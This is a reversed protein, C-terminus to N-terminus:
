STCIRCTMAKRLSSRAAVAMSYPKIAAPIATAMMGTRVPTPELALATNVASEVASLCCLPDSRKQGAPYQQLEFRASLGPAARVAISATSRHPALHGCETISADIAQFHWSQLYKSGSEPETL